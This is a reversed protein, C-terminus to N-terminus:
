PFDKWSMEWRILLVKMFSSNPTLTPGPLETLKHNSMRQCSTVGPQVSHVTLTETPSSHQMYKCLPFTHHQRVFTRLCRQTVTWCDFWKQERGWGNLCVYVCKPVLLLMMYHFRIYCLQFRMIENTHDNYMKFFSKLESQPSYCSSISLFFNSRKKKKKAKEVYNRRAWTCIPSSSFETISINLAIDNNCFIFSWQCAPQNRNLLFFKEGKIFLMKKILMTIKKVKNWKYCGTM